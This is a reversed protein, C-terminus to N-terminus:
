RPWWRRHRSTFRRRPRASMAARLLARARVIVSMRACVRARVCTPVETPGAATPIVVSELEGLRQLAAAVRMPESAAAGAPTPAHAPARVQLSTIPARIPVSGNGDSSLLTMTVQVTSEFDPEHVPEGSSTRLHISVTHQTGAKMLVPSASTVSSAAPDAGQITVACPSNSIPAGGVELCLEARGSASPVFSCEYTGDGLDVVTCPDVTIAATTASAKKAAEKADGKMSDGDKDADGTKADEKLPERGAVCLMGTVLLGGSILKNGGVDVTYVRCTAKAGAVAREAGSAFCQMPDVRGPLVSVSQPSGQVHQGRLLVDLRRPGSELPVLSARYVGKESEDPRITGISSGLRVCLSRDVNSIFAAVGDASKSIISLEAPVGVTLMTNWNSDFLVSTNSVDASAISVTFPSGRVLGGKQLRVHVYVEGEVDVCYQVPHMGDNNNGVTANVLSIGATNTITVDFVPGDEALYVLKNGMADKTWINFHAPQSVRAVQLGGGVCECM